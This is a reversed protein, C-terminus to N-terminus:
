LRYDCFHESFVDCPNIVYKKQRWGYIWLASFFEITEWDGIITEIRHYKFCLGLFLQLNAGGTAVM